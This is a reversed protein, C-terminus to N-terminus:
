EKFRRLSKLYKLPYKEHIIIKSAISSHKDDTFSISHFFNFRNRFYFKITYSRFNNVHTETANLLQM